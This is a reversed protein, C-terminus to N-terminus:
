YRGLRLQDRTANLLRPLLQANRAQGRLVPKGSLPILLGHRMASWSPATGASRLLALDRYNFFTPRLSTAPGTFIDALEALSLCATIQSPRLVHGFAHWSRGPALQRAALQAWDWRQAFDAGPAIRVDHIPPTQGPLDVAATAASFWDPHQGMATWGDAPGRRAQVQYPGPHSLLDWFPQLAVTNRGRPGVLVVDGFIEDHGLRETLTGVGHLRALVSARPNASLRSRSSADTLRLHGRGGRLVRRAPTAHLLSGTIKRARLPWRPDAPIVLAQDNGCSAIPGSTPRTATTPKPSM